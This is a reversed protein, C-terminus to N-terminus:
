PKRKNEKYETMQEREKDKQNLIAMLLEAMSPSLKKVVEYQAMAKQPYGQESYTLGLYLQATSDTSDAQVAKQYEEGALIFYAQSLKSYTEADVTDSRVTNQYEEILKVLGDRNEYPLKRLTDPFWFSMRDFKVARGWAMLGREYYLNALATHVKPFNPDLRMVEEFEGVARSYAKLAHYVQGLGFRADANAPDLEVARRLEPLAHDMQKEEAYQMGIKLHKRAEEKKNPGCGLLSLGLIGLALCFPMWAPFPGDRRM